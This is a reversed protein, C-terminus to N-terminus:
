KHRRRDKHVHMALDNARLRDFSLFDVQWAAHNVCTVEGGGEVEIGSSIDKGIGASCDNIQHSYGVSAIWSININQNSTDHFLLTRHQSVIYLLTM